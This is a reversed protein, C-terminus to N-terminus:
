PLITWDNGPAAAGHKGAARGGEAAHRGGAAMEALENSLRTM